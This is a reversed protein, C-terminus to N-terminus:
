LYKTLPTMIPAMLPYDDRKIKARNGHLRKLYDCTLQSIAAPSQLFLRMTMM